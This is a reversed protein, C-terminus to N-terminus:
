LLFYYIGAIPPGFLSVIGKGLSVMGHANTLNDLGLYEVQMVATLPIIPAVFSKVESLMSLTQYVM